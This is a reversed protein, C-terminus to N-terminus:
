SWKSNFAIQVSDDKMFSSFFIGALFWALLGLVLVLDATIITGVVNIITKKVSSPEEEGDPFIEGAEEADRRAAAQLRDFLESADGGTTTTAPGTSSSSGGGFSSVMDSLSMPKIDDDSKGIESPDYLGVAERVDQVQLQVPAERQKLEVVKPEEVVVEEEEEDDVVDDDEEEEVDDDTEDSESEAESETTPTSDGEDTTKRKRRVRRPSSSGSSAEEDDSSSSMSLVSSSSTSLGYFNRQTNDSTITTIFSSPKIFGNCKTCTNTTTAVQVHHNHHHQFTFSKVDVIVVLLLSWILSSSSSSSLM